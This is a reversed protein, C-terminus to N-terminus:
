NSPKTIFGINTLGIKQVAALIHSVKGYSTDVDARLHIQQKPNKQAVAKLEGELEDFSVARASIFYQGDKNISIEIPKEETIQSSIEQPLNLNIASNIVPATVLFIVMLVLMVDVLPTM